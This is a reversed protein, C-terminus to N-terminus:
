HTSYALQTHTNITLPKIQLLESHNRSTKTSEPPFVCFLCEHWYKTNFYGDPLMVFHSPLPVQLSPAPSPPLSPSTLGGAALRNLRAGNTEHQLTRPADLTGASNSISGDTGQSKWRQEESNDLWRPLRVQGGVWWGRGVWADRMRVPWSPFVRVRQPYPNWSEASKETVKLYHPIRGRLKWCLQVAWGRHGVAALSSSTSAVSAFTASLPQAPSPRPLPHLQWGHPWLIIVKLPTPLFHINGM